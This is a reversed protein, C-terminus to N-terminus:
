VSITKAREDHTREIAAELLVKFTEEHTKCGELLNNKDFYGYDQWECKILSASAFVKRADPELGQAWERLRQALAIVGKSDPLEAPAENKAAELYKPANFDLYFSVAHFEEHTFGSFPNVEAAEPRSNVKRELTVLRANNM